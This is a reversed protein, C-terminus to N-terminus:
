KYCLAKVNSYQCKKKLSSYLYVSSVKTMVIIIIGLVSFVFWCLVSFNVLFLLLEKFKMHGVNWGIFNQLAM